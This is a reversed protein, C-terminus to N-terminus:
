ATVMIGHALRQSKYFFLSYFIDQRETKAVNDFRLYM